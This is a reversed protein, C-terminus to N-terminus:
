REGGAPAPATDLGFLRSGTDVVSRVDPHLDPLHRMATVLSRAIVELAAASTGTGRRRHQDLHYMLDSLDHEDPNSAVDAPLLEQGGLMVLTQALTVVAGARQARRYAEMDAAQQAPRVAALNKSGHQLAAQLRTLLDSVGQRTRQRLPKILATPGAHNMAPEVLRLMARDLEWGIWTHIVWADALDALLVEYRKTRDPIHTRSTATDPDVTTPIVGCWRLLGLFDDPMRDLHEDGAETHRERIREAAAHVEATPPQPPRPPRGMM